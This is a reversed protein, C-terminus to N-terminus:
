VSLDVDPATETGLRLLEDRSPFVLGTIRMVPNLSDLYDQAVAGADRTKLGVSVAYKSRESGPRGFSRLSVALWKDFHQQAEARTGPDRCKDILIEAGFSEHGEEEELIKGIIRCYPDFSSNEYERLQYASARDYLFQAVGLELFSQIPPIPREERLLKTCHDDLDGADLLDYIKCCEEFHEMEEEVHQVVKKKFGVTPVLTLTEAFVTAAALERYGQSRIMSTLVDFYADDMEARHRITRTQTM